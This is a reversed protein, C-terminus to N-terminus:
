LKSNPEIFSIPTGWNESLDLWTPNHSEILALKKARVWGKLQKERAIAATPSDYREFWVLRNCRYQSTFGSVAGTKHEIVRREIKGTVGIYLVRTRSAVIYTYYCREHMLTLTTAWLAATTIDFTIPARADCICTRRSRERM